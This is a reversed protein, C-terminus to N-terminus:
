RGVIKLELLRLPPYTLITFAIAMWVGIDAGYGGVKVVVPGQYCIQYM